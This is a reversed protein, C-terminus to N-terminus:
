TREQAGNSLEKGSVEGTGLFEPSGGQGRGIGSLQRVEQVTMDAATAIEDWTYGVSRLKNVDDQIIADLMDRIELDDVLHEPTLHRKEPTRKRAVEHDYGYTVLSTRTRFDPSRVGVADTM